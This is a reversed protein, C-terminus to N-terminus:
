GQGGLVTPVARVIEQDKIAFEVLEDHAVFRGAENYIDLDNVVDISNDLSVDFIKAGARTWYVESFKLVLTYDGDAPTTITYSFSETAYRETKYVPQYRADCHRGGCLDLTCITLLRM